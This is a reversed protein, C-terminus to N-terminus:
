SSADGAIEILRQSYREVIGILESRQEDSIPPRGRRLLRATGLFGRGAAEAIARFDRERGESEEEPTQPVGLAVYADVLQALDRLTALDDASWSRPKDDIACFSGIPAGSVASLPTGAYAIVGLDSIARNTQLIPHSRADEIVLEEQSSVVWQCFSHSLPTQREEDWPAPLGVQSKFFQRRDDVLSVLAVPVGLVQAALRTVIDLDEEPDTDLLGTAGLASLREPDQLIEAPAETVPRALGAEERVATLIDGEAVPPELCRDVGASLLAQKDAGPLALAIVPIAATHM